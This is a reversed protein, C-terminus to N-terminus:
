CLHSHTTPLISSSTNVICRVGFVGTTLVTARGVAGELVATASTTQSHARGGGEPHMNPEQSSRGESSAKRADVWQEQIGSKQSTM